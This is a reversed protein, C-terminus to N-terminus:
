RGARNNEGRHNRAGRRAVPDRGRRGRLLFNRAVKLLSQREIGALGEADFVLAALDADVAFGIALYFDRGGNAYLRMGALLGVLGRLFDLDIHLLSAFADAHAGDKGVLSSPEVQRLANRERHVILNSQGRIRRKEDAVTEAIHSRGANAGTGLNFVIVARQDHSVGARRPQVIREARHIQAPSRTVGEDVVVVARYLGGFDLAREFDAIAEAADSDAAHLAGGV